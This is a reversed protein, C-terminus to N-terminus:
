HQEAPYRRERLKADHSGDDREDQFDGQNLQGAVTILDFKEHGAVDEPSQPLCHQHQKRDAQQAKHQDKQRAIRHRRQHGQISPSLIQGINPM